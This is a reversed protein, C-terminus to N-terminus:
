GKHKFVLRASLGDYTFTASHGVDCRFAGAGDGNSYGGGVYALSSARVFASDCFYTTTSGSVSSSNFPLFGRTNSGAAKTFYGGTNSSFGSAEKFQYGSGTDNFSKFDTLIQRSGDSYIGDCWQYANGWFDEIGLCKVQHKGDTASGSNSCFGTSNTQGTTTVASGSTYGKGLASQSNLNKFVILYMVQMLTWVYWSLQQYGSGNATSGTRCQGINVNVCPSKGSYSNLKSSSGSSLYAGIYIFDCDGETELSHARYCYGSKGSESTFDVLLNNGQYSLKYGCKPVEIMVDGDTGTLNATGDGPQKDDSDEGKGSMVKATYDNRRLYYQVQGGKVVCPRLDKFFPQDKWNDWGATKVPSDGGYTVAKEPDSNTSDIIIGANVAGVLNVAQGTYDSVTIEKHVVPDGITEFIFTGKSDLVVVKSNGSGFSVTKAHADDGQKYWKFQGGTKGTVTVDVIFLEVSKETYDTAAVTKSVHQTPDAVSDVQFIYSGFTTLTITKKGQGDATTNQSASGIGYKVTANPRTTIKVDVIQIEIQKAEYTNIEVVKSAIGVSFTYTGFKKIIITAKGSEDAQESSTVDDNNTYNITANPRTTVEVAVGTLEINQTEYTTAEVIRSGAPSSFTYIGFETLTVTGEGEPSLTVSGKETGDKSYTVKSEPNGTIKVDILPLEVSYEKLENITVTKKSVERAAFQWDGYVAIEMDVKGTVGSDAEIRLKNYTAVVQENPKTTVHVTVSDQSYLTVHYQKVDDVLLETSKLGSTFTYTGYGTPECMGYGTDDLQVEGTDSSDENHYSITAEPTGVFYVEIGGTGTNIEYWEGQHKYHLKTM